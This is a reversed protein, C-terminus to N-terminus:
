FKKTQKYFKVIRQAQDFGSIFAGHATSFYKEHCAEGAFLVVPKCSFQSTLQETKTSDIKDNQGNSQKVPYFDEITLMKGLVNHSITENNDCSTSIHSYAGKIYPNSHWRTSYILLFFPLNIM